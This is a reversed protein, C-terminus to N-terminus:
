MSRIWVMKRVMSGSKGTPSHRSARVAELGFHTRRTRPSRVFKQRSKPKRSNRSFAIWVNGEVDEMLENVEYIRGRQSLEVPVAPQEDQQLTLGGGFTANWVRGGRDLLVPNAEPDMARGKATQRAADEAFREMLEPSPNLDVVGGGSEVQGFEDGRKFIVSGDPGDILQTVVPPRPRRVNRVIEQLSGKRARFLGGQYTAAWVDGNGTASM